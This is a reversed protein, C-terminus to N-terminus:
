RVYVDEASKNFRVRKYVYFIFGIFFIMLTAFSIYYVNRAVFGEVKYSVQANASIADECANSVNEALSMAKAKDGARFADQARRFVETLELCEPNDAIMKSTFVLLKEAESENTRRLDIFFDGWDQFKPSTINAFLTAKYKGSRNTDALIRMTYNKREGAKLSDLHDAGLKVSVDDAFENNYLVQSSLDIGNLDVNGANELAFPVDIFNQDSVIVDEPVIIRLSYFKVTTSGGGGSSHSVIVQPETFKVQIIESTDSTLNDSGKIYLIGNHVTKLTTGIQIDWGSSHTLFIDGDGSSKIFTVNQLYYPDSVDEDEFYGNLNFKINSNYDTQLIGIPAIVRMPANTHSINLKFSFNTAVSMSQNFSLASSNSYVEVTLNKELGYSEDRFNPVFNWSLISGNGFGSVNARLSLNGYSCNSNNYFGCSMNDIWFEYTLNDGVSHNITFNLYSSVNEKLNFSYNEIPSVLSAFGYVSLYFEQWDVMGDSDMVSINYRWKGSYSNNSSLNFDIRKDIISLNPSGPTLAVIYYSLNLGNFDDEDDTANITFNLYDNITLSINSINFLVPPGLSESINLYWTQNTTNGAVDTINMFVTYNGVDAVGPVFTAVYSAIEGSVGGFELFSFNFLNFYSGTSNVFTVNVVLSENYYNKQGEPILFDDDRIDLSFNITLGEKIIFNSGEAIINTTGNKGVLQSIIPADFINSINFVFNWSSNLKGNSSIISVNHFGVDCDSPTFSILGNSNFNSPTLSCFEETMNEYYFSITENPDSVNVSVNYSFAQGETLNLIVPNDLSANWVPATENIIQVVFIKWALNGVSDNVSINVSYNGEGLTNLAQTHDIDITSTSYNNGSIEVGVGPRVWSTNSAFTLVEDKVSTDYILLDDDYAKLYFSKNEYLTVNSIPDLFVPSETYNVFLKIQGVKIDYNDSDEVSFNITWNGVEKKLPTVSIPLSYFFNSANNSYNAYFWDRNSEDYAMASNSSFFAYSSFDLSDTEGRTTINITCNFTDGETISAGTCNSVNVSLMSYVNFTLLYTDSSQNLEYSSADCYPSPCTGNFDKVNFTAWYTGVDNFGPSFDFITSTNTTNSLNFISCNEGDVKGSWAAHTCNNIFTLNFNLPYQKEEDVAHVIYYSGKDQPFDYTSNLDTFNPADNTANIIFNFTKAGISEAPDNYYVDTTINYMGTLNDRTSNILLIGTGSDLSIWDFFSAEKSGYISSSINIGSGFVFSLPVSSDSANLVFVSFNYSSADTNNENWYSVNDWPTGDWSPVAGVLVVMGIMIVIFLFRLFGVYEVTRM